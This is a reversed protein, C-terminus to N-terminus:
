PLVAIDGYFRNIQRVANEFAELELPKTVFANAHHNYSAMVDLEAQSTTLVVVPITKLDADNKIEALVERGGMRPMNLDLLILDPRKTGAGRLYELAQVGDAVRHIVPAMPSAELAEEIILSDADDDDVILVSLTRIAPM